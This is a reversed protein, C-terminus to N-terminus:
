GGAAPKRRAKMFQQYAEIHEARRLIKSHPDLTYTAGPPLAISGKGADMPLTVLQGPQGAGPQGAGALPHGIRVELPMPFPKGDATKWALDLRDGDRTAVLEPLAAEYLYVQFFWSLDRGAAKNVAAIFEQTTGYRPAFYGPRPADTGYVEMRVARFFAEDGILNRLTHLVLAGKNYIDQGPGGRKEDYVAEETRSRASVIPAKDGIRARLAHLSAYYAMDGRLYQMYLPQMYTGFGEHLWMDNWDRNTLQNGFWEHAFEHQLLDDYGFPTKVYNNGYANITQHEMGKHPTEVVGMKEDGFPYPGITSEFFDLVLPFEKFLERAQKEHQPLYYLSMPIHNGYRSAYDASLLRYPGVNVSIGYTSPNKARWHWTRWGNAQESGLLVGNGAAVLPAPVTFHEEVVRAKGEPHDICPWFLDCGEGEVASAVWPQGDPTTAWVFGGDWPAHRAVHPQGHYIVRVQVQEGQRLPQPLQVTLRGEPNSYGAAALRQGNVEVADIPLNRDLDLVIRALRDRATLTLTADGEISRTSPDIKLKLDAKEFVVALQEPPRPLGSAVTTETLPPQQTACATLLLSACAILTKRM